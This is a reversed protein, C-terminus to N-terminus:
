KAGQKEYKCVNGRYRCEGGRHYYCGELECRDKFNTEEPVPANGINDGSM